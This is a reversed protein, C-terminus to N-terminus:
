GDAVEGAGTGTHAALIRSAMARLAQRLAEPAVIEAEGDCALVWRVFPDVQRVVFARVASGDDRQEALSGYANREAWIALPFRFLVRAQLTD